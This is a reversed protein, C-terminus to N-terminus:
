QPLQFALQEQKPESPAAERVKQRIQAFLAAYGPDGSLANSWPYDRMFMLQIAHRQFSARFYFLAEKRRGLMLLAEGLVFGTETRHEFAAKLSNARAQILGTRGGRAWGRAAANALAVDDPAKTIAAFRRLDDIYAPYDGSAFDLERLFEAPSALFPQSQEIERLRKVGSQFEGFDAHFLAADAAIAPSAPDLRVAEDIQRIAEAGESRCQLTGAYWQHAQASNPDLALAKRFEADSAAIDWDWYYLAFAKATHASALNPNLEIARDAANEAKSLSDGLDGQGFQPLLEYSEALGAYAEAYSPDAVIAQTYFDSAKALGDATRLNWYYRGRLFLDAAARVPIHRERNLADRSSLITASATQRDGVRWFLTAAFALAVCAALVWPRLQVFLSSVHVDSSSGSLITAADSKSHNQADDGQVRTAHDTGFASDRMRKDEWSKLWADLESAYAFVTGGKKGPVRHVPLGRQQEWRKATRVDCGFYGAIGKWSALVGPHEPSAATNGDFTTIDHM